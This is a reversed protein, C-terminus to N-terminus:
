ARGRRKLAKRVNDRVSTTEHEARDHGRSLTCGHKPCRKSMCPNFRHEYSRPQKCWYCNESKM